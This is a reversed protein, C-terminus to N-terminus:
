PHAGGGAAPAAAAAADGPGSTAAPRAPLGQQLLLEMSREIPLHVIGQAEDVWGYSAVRRREEKLYAGLDLEPTTQLRPEPPLRPQTKDVLPSRPEDRAQEQRTFERFLLWMALAAVVVGIVLWVGFWGISRADIEKDFGEQPAQPAEPGPRRIESM